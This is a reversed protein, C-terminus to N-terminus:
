NSKKELFKILNTLTKNVPTEIRLSNGERVIAGNIMEIETQRHKLVDQLMSSRNSATKLCVDKTHEIPEFSLKIGKRIAITHAEKVAAVLLEELEPHKLLEGNCQGTIATLPNIGVNVILKDWILGLVNDSIETDINSKNFLKAIEKLRKTKIGNLEGIVTKGIGAHRIKGPGLMTAGHATTGGIVHDNGIAEAILDINGLGNQLTMVITKEGIINHSTKLADATSISKVFLIILDTQDLGEVTTYAKLNKYTDIVGESEIQLGHRNIADVHDQMIDVLYIQNEQNKSLLGGYLCGMAGAGIVTIKM